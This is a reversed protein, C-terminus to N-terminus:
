DASVIDFKLGAFEEVYDCDQPYCGPIERTTYTSTINQITEGPKVFDKLLKYIDLKDLTVTKSTTTKM